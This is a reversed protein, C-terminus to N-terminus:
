DIKNKESLSFGSKLFEIFSDIEATSLRTLVKFLLFSKELANSLRLTFSSNCLDNISPNLFNYPYVLSSPPILCEIVSSEFSISKSSAFNINTEQLANM